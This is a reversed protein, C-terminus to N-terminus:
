EKRARLLDAIEKHEAHEADRHRENQRYTIVILALIGGGNVLSGIDLDPAAAALSMIANMM